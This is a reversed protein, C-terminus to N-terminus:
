PGEEEDDPMVGILGNVEGGCLAIVAFRARLWAEAIPRTIEESMRMTYEQPGPSAEWTARLYVGLGEADEGDLPESEFETFVLPLNLSAEWEDRSVWALVPVYEGNM